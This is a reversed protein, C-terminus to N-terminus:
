FDAAVIEINALLVLFSFYYHFVVNMEFHIRKSKKKKKKKMEIVYKINLTLKLAFDDFIGDVALEFGRSRFFVWTAAHLQHEAFPHKPNSFKSEHKCLVVKLCKAIVTNTAHMSDRETASSCIFKFYHTRFLSFPNPWSLSPFCKM